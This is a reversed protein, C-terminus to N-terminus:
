CAVRHAPHALWSTWWRGGGSVARSPAELLAVRAQPWAEVVWESGAPLVQREGASLWIDGGALGAGTRTLWVRGDTVLLWRAAPAPALRTAGASDLAWEWPRSQHQITMAQPNM